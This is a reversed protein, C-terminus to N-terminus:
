CARGAFFRIRKQLRGERGGRVFGATTKVMAFGFRCQEWGKRLSAFLSLIPM